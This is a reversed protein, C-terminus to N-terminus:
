LAINFCDRKELSALRANKYLDSVKSFAKYPLFSDSSYDMQFFIVWSGVFVWM